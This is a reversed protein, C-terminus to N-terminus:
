QVKTGYIPDTCEEDLSSVYSLILTNEDDFAKELKYYESGKKFVITESSGCYGYVELDSMIDGGTIWVTWNSDPIGYECESSRQVGIVAGRNEDFMWEGSLAEFTQDLTKRNDFIKQVEAPVSFSEGRAEALYGALVYVREHTMEEMEGAELMAQMTGGLAYLGAVKSNAEKEANWAKQEKVLEDKKSADVEETLRDWLSNLENDWINFADVEFNNMDTQSANESNFSDDHEKAKAEIEAVEDQISKGAKPTNDKDEKKNSDSDSVDSDDVDETFADEVKGVTTEGQTSFLFYAGGVVAIGLFILVGLVVALTSAASKKGRRSM